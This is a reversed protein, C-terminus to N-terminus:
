GLEARELVEVLAMEGGGRDFGKTEGLYCGFEPKMSFRFDREVLFPRASLCFLM